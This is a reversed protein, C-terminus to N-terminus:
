CVLKVEPCKAFNTETYASVFAVNLSFASLFVAAAYCVSFEIQASTYANAFIAVEHCVNIKEKCIAEFM